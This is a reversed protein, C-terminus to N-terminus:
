PLTIATWTTTACSYLSTGAVNAINMYMGMQAACASTPAANGWFLPLNYPYVTESFVSVTNTGGATYASVNIASYANTTTYPVAYSGSSTCTIAQGVNSLSGSASGTQLSFTCASPATGSVTWQIVHSFYQSNEFLATNAANAIPPFLLTGPSAPGGSGGSFNTSATFVAPSNLSCSPTSSASLVCVTSNITQLTEAGSAGASAGIYPRWGVVNGGGGTNIPPYVTVVSTSGTTTITSTAATDTSLPTETNSLSFLTVGIRYTGAAVSGGTTSASAGTATSTSYSQGTVVAPPAAIINETFSQNLVQQGFSPAVCLAFLAILFLLRKM